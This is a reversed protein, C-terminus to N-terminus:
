GQMSGAREPESPCPKATETIFDCCLIRQAL